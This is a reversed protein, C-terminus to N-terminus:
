LVLWIRQHLWAVERVLCLSLTFIALEGREGKQFIRKAKQIVQRGPLIQWQCTRGSHVMNLVHWTQGPVTGPRKRICWHGIKRLCSRRCSRFEWKGREGRMRGVKEVKKNEPTAGERGEMWLWSNFDRLSAIKRFPSRPHITSAACLLQQKSRAHYLFCVSRSLQKQTTYSRFPLQCAAWSAKRYRKRNYVVEAHHALWIHEIM